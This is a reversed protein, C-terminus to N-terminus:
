GAVSAIREALWLDFLWENSATGGKRTITIGNPGVQVDLNRWRKNQPLANIGQRVVEPAATDTALKGNDSKVTFPQYSGGLWTTWHSMGLTIKVPRNQRTGEIVTEGHVRTHPSGGISGVGVTPIETIKLGLPAFLQNANSVSRGMIWFGLVAMIVVLVMYVAVFLGFNPSVGRFSMFGLAFGLVPFLAIAMTGILFIAMLRKSSSGVRKVLAPDGGNASMALLLSTWDELLAPSELPANIRATPPALILTYFWYGILSVLWLGLCPLWVTELYPIVAYGTSDQLVVIMIVPFAFLFALGGFLLIKYVWSGMGRRQANYM